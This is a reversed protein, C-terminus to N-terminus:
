GTTARISASSSSQYDVEEGGAAGGRGRDAVGAVRGDFPQRGPGDARGCGQRIAHRARAGLGRDAKKSKAKGDILIICIPSFLDFRKLTYIGGEISSVPAIALTKAGSPSMVGAYSATRGCRDRLM